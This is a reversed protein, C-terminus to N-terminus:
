PAGASSVQVDFGPTQKSEGLVRPAELTQKGLSHASSPSYQTLPHGSASSQPLTYSCLSVMHYIEAAGEMIQKGCWKATKVAPKSGKNCEM